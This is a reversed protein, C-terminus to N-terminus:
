TYISLYSGSSLPQSTTQSPNNYKELNTATLAKAVIKGTTDIDLVFAQKNKIFTAAQKLLPTNDGIDPYPATNMFSPTINTGSDEKASIQNTVPDIDLYYPTGAQDYSRADIQWSTTPTGKSIMGPITEVAKRLLQAQTPTEDTMPDTLQETVQLNGTSDLSIKFPEHTAMLLSGQEEWSSQATLAGSHILSLDNEAGSLDALWTSNKANGQIKGAMTAISSMAQQLQNQQQVNFQSLDAQSQPVAQVQGKSNLSVVVPQGTQAAYDTVKEWDATPQLSGKQMATIRAAVNTFIANTQSTVKQQDLVGQISSGSTSSSAGLATFINVTNNVNTGAIAGMIGGSSGVAGQILGSIGSLTASSTSSAASAQQIMTAIGFGPPTASITSM